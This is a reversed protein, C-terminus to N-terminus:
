SEFDDGEDIPTLELPDTQTIGLIASCEGCLIEAGRYVSELHVRVMTRCVPCLISMIGIPDAPRSATKKTKTM